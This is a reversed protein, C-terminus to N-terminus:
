NTPGQEEQDLQADIPMYKYGLEGKETSENYNLTVSATGGVWYFHNRPVRKEEGPGYWDVLAERLRNFNRPGSFELYVCYFRGKYFIYHLRDLKAEGMSMDDGKRVYAKLAGGDLVLVMDSLGIVPAGWKIGRFHKPENQYADAPTLWVVCAMAILFLCVKQPLRQM